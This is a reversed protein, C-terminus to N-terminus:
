NTILEFQSVYVIRSQSILRLYRYQQKSHIVELRGNKQCIQRSGRHHVGGVFKYKIKSSARIQKFSDIWDFSLYNKIWINYATVEQDEIFIVM